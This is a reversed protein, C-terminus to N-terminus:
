LYSLYYGEIRNPLNLMYIWIQGGTGKAVQLFKRFFGTVGDKLAPFVAYLPAGYGKLTILCKNSRLHGVPSIGALTVISM